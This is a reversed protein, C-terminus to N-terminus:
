EYLAQEFWGLKVEMTDTDLVVYTRRHPHDPNRPEGLSGPNIIWAKGVQRIVEKHTNGVVLVDAELESEHVEGLPNEPAQNESFAENEPGGGGGSMNATSGAKRDMSEYGPDLPSIHVM